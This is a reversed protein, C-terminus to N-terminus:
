ITAAKQQCKKSRQHRSKVGTTITSGCLECVYPQKKYQKMKEALEEKNEEYWQKKKEAIEERNAEYYQRQQEKREEENIFARIANLCKGSGKILDIQYQEERHLQEMNECRFEDDILIIKVNEWGLANFHKYVPREPNQKANQKHWKLRINLSTCTSGIYVMDDIDSCLKYIKANDYEKSGKPMKTTATFYRYPLNSTNM